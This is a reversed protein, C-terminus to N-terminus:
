YQGDKVIKGNLCQCFTLSRVNITSFRDFCSPENQAVQLFSTKYLRWPDVYLSCSCRGLARSFREWRTSEYLKPAYMAWKTARENWSKKSDQQLWKESEEMPRSHNTCIGCFNIETGAPMSDLIRRSSSARAFSPRRSKKKRPNESVIRRCWRSVWAVILQRALCVYRPSIYCVFFFTSRM